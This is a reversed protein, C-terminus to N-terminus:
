RHRATHTPAARTAAHHIHPNVAAGRVPTILADGLDRALFPIERFEREVPASTALHAFFQTVAEPPADATFRTSWHTDFGDHVSHEIRWATETDPARRLTRHGDPSTFLRGDISAAWHNQAAIDALSSTTIPIRDAHRRDGLLQPLRQTVAAVAEIPTQRTCEVKWFPEHHAITWWVGDTRSPTFDM